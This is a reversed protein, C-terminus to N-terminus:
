LFFSLFGGVSENYLISVETSSLVKSFVAVDDILASSYNAPGNNAGMYFADVGDGLSTGTTDTDRSVGDVFLEAAGGPILTTVIHHYSSTGLTINYTLSTGYASFLIRRTGSNYEYRILYLRNAGTNIDYYIFDYNGSSIETQLKVWLSISISDTAANRGLADTRSLYKSSNSAGLDFANSFKGTNFAVSGNNTLNYANATTDNVNEGRWYARLTGDALLSTSNLEAM